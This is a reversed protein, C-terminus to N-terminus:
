VLGLLARDVGLAAPLLRGAAPGRLLSQADGALEVVRQRVADGHDLDLGPDGRVQRALAALLDGGRQERDLLRAVVGYALQTRGEVHEAGVTAFRAVADLPDGLQDLPGPGEPQRRRHPDTAGLA